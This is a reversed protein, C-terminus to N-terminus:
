YFVWRGVEVGTLFVFKISRSQPPILGPSLRELDKFTTRWYYESILNSLLDAVGDIRLSFPKQMDSSYPFLSSSHM